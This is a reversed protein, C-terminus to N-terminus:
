RRAPRSRAAASRPTSPRTRCFYNVVSTWRLIEEIAIEIEIREPEDRLLELQDPHELLASMGGSLTNRTTDNGAFILLGFFLLIEEDALKSGDVEAEVLSMVLSEEGSAKQRAIQEQLYLAMEVFVDTDAAPETSLQAAEIREIWDELRSHDAAPLGMLDSLVRLPIPVAVASVFDCSGDAIVADLTEGVVRRVRDELKAVSHPTFATQLIKRYKTHEPPDKFLLLNRNVDLPNVQDPHPFIGGAWSSFTATDRSIAAIDAHSCVLWLQTGTPGKGSDAPSRPRLEDLLEHPPGEAFRGPDTLALGAASSEANM